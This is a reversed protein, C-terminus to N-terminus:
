YPSPGHMFPQVEITVVTSAALQGIASLPLIAPCRCPRHALDTM